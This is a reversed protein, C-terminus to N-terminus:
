NQGDKKEKKGIELVFDLIARLITTDLTMAEEKYGDDKALIYTACKFTKVDKKIKIQDFLETGLDRREFIYFQSDEYFVFGKNQLQKLGTM